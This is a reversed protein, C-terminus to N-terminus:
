LQGKDLLNLLTVAASRPTGQSNEWAIWTRAPIGLRAAAAVQTLDLRERLAKLRAPTWPNSKPKKTKKKAMCLMISVGRWSCGSLDGKGKM